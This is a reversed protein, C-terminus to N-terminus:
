PKKRIGGCTRDMSGNIYMSALPTNMVSTKSTQTGFSKRHNTFELISWTCIAVLPIIRPLHIKVMYRDFCIVYGIQDTTLRTEVTDKFFHLFAFYYTAPAVYGTGNHTLALIAFSVFSIPTEKSAPVM